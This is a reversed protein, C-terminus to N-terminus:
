PANSLRITNIQLDTDITRHDRGTGGSTNNLWDLEISSPADVPINLTFTADKPDWSKDVKKQGPGNNRRTGSDPTLNYTGVDTGGIKVRIQFSYNDPPITASGAYQNFNITLKAAGRPIIGTLTGSTAFKYTINVPRRAFVGGGSIPPSASPDCGDQNDGQIPSSPANICTTFQGGNANWTFIPPPCVAPPIVTVGGPCNITVPPCVAPPTVTSGDPCNITVPAPTEPDTYGLIGGVINDIRYTLEEQQRGLDGLGDWRVRFDFIGSGRNVISVSYM